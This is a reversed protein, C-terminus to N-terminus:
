KGSKTEFRWQLIELSLLLARSSCSYSREEYRRLKQLLLNIMTTMLFSFFNDKQNPFFLKFIVSCRPEWCSNQSLDHLDSEGNSGFCGFIPIICFFIILIILYLSFCFIYAIFAIKTVLLKVFIDIIQLNKGLYEEFFKLFIHKNSFM